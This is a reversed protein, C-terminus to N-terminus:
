DWGKVWFSRGQERETPGKKNGLSALIQSIHKFLAKNKRHLFILDSRPIRRELTNLPSNGAKRLQEAPTLGCWVMVLVVWGVVSVGVWM